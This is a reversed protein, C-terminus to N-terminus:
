KNQNKIKVQIYVLGLISCLLLILPLLGPEGEVKIMFILLIISLIFTLIFFKRFNQLRAMNTAKIM